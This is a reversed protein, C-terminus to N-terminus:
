RNKPDAGGGFATHLSAKYHEYRVQSFDSLYGAVPGYADIRERVKKKLSDSIAQIEAGRSMWKDNEIVQFGTADLDLDGLPLIVQLGPCGLDRRIPHLLVGHDVFYIEAPHSFNSTVAAAATCPLLDLSEREQSLEYYFCTSGWSSSQCYGGSESNWVVPRYKYVSGERFYSRLPPRKIVLPAQNLPTTWYYQYLFSTQFSPDSKEPSNWFGQVNRGELRVPIPCHRALRDVITAEEARNRATRWFKWTSPRMQTLVCETEPGALYRRMETRNGSAGLWLADSGQRHNVRWCVSEDPILLSGLLAQCLARVGPDAIELPNEMGKMVKRLDRLSAGPAPHFRAVTAHKLIKISVERAGSLLAAQVFKLLYHGPSPLRFRELKDRARLFDVSFKGSSELVAEDATQQIYDHISSM